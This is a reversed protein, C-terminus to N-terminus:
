DVIGTLLWRDAIRDYALDYLGGRTLVRFCRRSLRRRPDWWAREVAWTQVVADVVYPHGDDLAFSRPAGRRADWVVEVERERRKGALGSAPAVMESARMIWPSRLLEVIVPLRADTETLLDLTLGPRRPDFTKIARNRGM